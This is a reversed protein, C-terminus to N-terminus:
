VPPITPSISTPWSSSGGSPPLPGFVPTGQGPTLTAITTGSPYQVLINHNQTPVTPDGYNIVQYFVGLPVTSPAPLVVAQNAGSAVLFQYTPANATLNLTATLTQLNYPQVIAGTGVMQRHANGDWLFTGSQTNTVIRMPGPSDLPGFIDATQRTRTGDILTIRGSYDISTVVTANSVVTGLFLASTPFAAITASTVISGTASLGIFTTSSAPVSVTANTLLSVPIAAVGFGASVQIVLNSPTSLALGTVVGSGCAGALIGAYLQGAVTNLLAATPLTMGTVFPGSSGSPIAPANSIPPPVQTALFNYNVSM